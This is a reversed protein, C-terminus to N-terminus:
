RLAVLMTISVRVPTQVRRATETRNKIRPYRSQCPPFLRVHSKKVFSGTGTPSVPPPIAFAITPLAFSSNIAESM